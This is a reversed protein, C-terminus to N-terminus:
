ELYAKCEPMAGVKKGDAEEAFLELNLRVNDSRIGVPGDFEMAVAGVSGEWVLKRGVSVTMEQGNLRASLVHSVGKTAEPM